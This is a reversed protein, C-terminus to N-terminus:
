RDTKSRTTEPIFSFVPLEQDMSCRCQDVNEALASRCILMHKWQKKSPSSSELRSGRMVAASAAFYQPPTENVEQVGRLFSYHDKEDRLCGVEEGFALRTIVDMTFYCSMTGLNVLPQVEEPSATLYRKYLVEILTKVQDNIGHELM